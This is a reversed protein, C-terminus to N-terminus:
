KKNQYKEHAALFNCLDSPEFFKDIKEAMIHKFIVVANWTQIKPFEPTYEEGPENKKCLWGPYNSIIDETKMKLMDNFDNSNVFNDIYNRFKDYLIKFDDELNQGVPFVEFFNEYKIVTNKPDEAFVATGLFLFLLFKINM